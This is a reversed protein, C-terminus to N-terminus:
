LHWSYWCLLHFPLGIEIGQYLNIAAFLKWPQALCIPCLGACRIETFGDDDENDVAYKKDIDSEWRDTLDVLADFFNSTSAM